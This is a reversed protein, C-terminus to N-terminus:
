WDWGFGAVFAARGIVPGSQEFLGYGSVGLYAFAGGTAYQVRANGAAGYLPRNDGIRSGIAPGASFQYSLKGVGGFRERVVEYSTMQFKDNDFTVAYEWRLGPPNTPEPPAALLGCSGLIFLFLTALLHKM